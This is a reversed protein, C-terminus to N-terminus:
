PLHVGLTVERAPSLDKECKLACDFSFGEVLLPCEPYTERIGHIQKRSAM